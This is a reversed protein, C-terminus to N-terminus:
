RGGPNNLKEWRDVVDPLIFDDPLDRSGDERIQALVNTYGEIEDWLDFVFTEEALLEPNEDLIVRWLEFGKEYQKLAAPIDSDRYSQEADYLLKRAELLQETQETESRNKWYGYNITMERYQDVIRTRNKYYRYQEVLKIAKARNKESTGTALEQPSVEIQKM